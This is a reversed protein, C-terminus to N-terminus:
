RLGSPIQTLVEGNIPSVVELTRGSRAGVARGNVIMKADAVPANRLQDLQEQLL